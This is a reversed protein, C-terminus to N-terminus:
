IWERHLAPLAIALSDFLAPNSGAGSKYYETGWWFVGRGGAGHVDKNIDALFQAQGNQTFPYDGIFKTTHVFPYNTEVIIVEHTPFSKQISEIKGSLDKVLGCGWQEYCSLGIMDFQVQLKGEGSLLNKYWSMVNKTSGSNLQAVHIMIKSTKSVERVGQIGKSVLLQLSPWNDKCVKNDVYGGANCPQGQPAWLMGQDIENGIQVYQPVTDQKSLATMVMHTYNYVADALKSLSLSSWRVPKTQHGPDAWTDSYHFDLLFGLNLEKVRKAMELVGQLNCYDNPSIPDNWIRLRITNINNLKLILLADQTPSTANNKYPSCVGKCDLTPLASMDAGYLFTAVSCVRVLCLSVFILLRATIM